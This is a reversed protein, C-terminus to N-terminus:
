DPFPNKSIREKPIKNTILKACNKKKMKIYTGAILDHELYIANRSKKIPIAGKKHSSRIILIISDTETYTGAYDFQTFQGHFNSLIKLVYSTDQLHM